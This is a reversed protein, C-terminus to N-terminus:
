LGTVFIIDHCKQMMKSKRSVSMNKKPSKRVMTNLQEHKSRHRWLVNSNGKGYVFFVDTLANALQARIIQSKVKVSHKNNETAKLIYEPPNM